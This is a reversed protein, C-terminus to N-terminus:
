SQPKKSLKREIKTWDDQPIQAPDGDTSNIVTAKNVNSGQLYTGEPTRSTKQTSPTNSVVQSKKMNTSKGNAEVQRRVPITTQNELNIIQEMLQLQDKHTDHEVMNCDSVFNSEPQKNTRIDSNHSIHEKQSTWNSNIMLRLILNSEIKQIKQDLNKELRHFLQEYM